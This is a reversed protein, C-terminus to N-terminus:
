LVEELVSNIDGVITYVGGSTILDTSGQTATSTIGPKNRIYDPASTDAQNWDSQGTIAACGIDDLFMEERTVPTPKEYERGAAAAMFIENRTIPELNNPM